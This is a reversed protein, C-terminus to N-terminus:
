ERKARSSEPKRRFSPLGPNLNSKPAGARNKGKPHLAM